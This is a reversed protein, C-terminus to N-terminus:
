IITECFHCFLAVVDVIFFCNLFPLIYLNIGHRSQSPDELDILVTRSAPRDFSAEWTTCQRADTQTRTAASMAAQQPVTAMQRTHPVTDPKSDAPGQEPFKRTNVPSLSHMYDTRKIHRKLRLIILSYLGAILFVPITVFLQAELVIPIRGNELSFMARVECDIYNGTDPYSRILLITICGTLLPPLAIAIYRRKGQFINKLKSNHISVAILRELSILLAFCLSSGFSTVCTVYIAFCLHRSSRYQCMTFSTLVSVVVSSIIDSFNICSAFLIFNKRRLRKSLVVICFILTNGVGGIAAM